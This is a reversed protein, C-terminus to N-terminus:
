YSQPWQCNTLGDHSKHLTRHSKLLSQESVSRTLSQDTIKTTM